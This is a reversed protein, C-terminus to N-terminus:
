WAVSSIFVVCACIGRSTEVRGLSARLERVPSLIYQIAHFAGEGRGKEDDRQRHPWGSLRCRTEVADRRDDFRGDRAVLKRPRDNERSSAVLDSVKAGDPPTRELWRGFRHRGVGDEVHRRQ